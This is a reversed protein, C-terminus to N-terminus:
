FAVRSFRTVSSVKLGLTTFGYGPMLANQAAIGCASDLITAIYGGHVGEMRNYSSGDPKAEFVAHGYDAETLAIGIEEGIEVAGCPVDHM